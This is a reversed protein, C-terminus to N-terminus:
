LIETKLFRVTVSRNNGRNNYNVTYTIEKVGREDSEDTVSDKDNDVGDNRWDVVNWTISDVGRPKPANQPYTHSGANFDSDSFSKPFVLEIQDTIFNSSESITNSIKNGTIAHGHMTYFSLIGVSLIVMAVLAELLTFGSQNSQTTFKM